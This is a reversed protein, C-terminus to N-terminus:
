LGLVKDVFLEEDREPYITKLSIREFYKEPFYSNIKNLLLPDRFDICFPYKKLIPDKQINIGNCIIVKNYSIAELYKSSKYNSKANINGLVIVAKAEKIKEIFQKKPLMEYFILNNLHSTHKGSYSEIMMNKLGNQEAIEYIMEVPRINKYFQGGYIINKQEKTSYIKPEKLPVVFFTSKKGNLKSSSLGGDEDLLIKGAFEYWRRERKLRKKVFIKKTANEAYPDFALINFKANKLKAFKYAAEVYQYNGGVGFVEDIQTKKFYKSLKKLIYGSMVLSFDLGAVRGFKRILRYLTLRKAMLPSKDIIVSNGNLIYNSSFSSQDYFFLQINQKKVNLLSELVSSVANSSGPAGGVFLIKYMYKLIKLIGGFHIYM